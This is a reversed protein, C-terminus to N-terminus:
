SLSRIPQPHDRVAYASTAGVGAMITVVVHEKISFPGPNLSVGFIRKNPVVRALLRGLPFTLLQAVLQAHYRSTLPMRRISPTPSAGPRSHYESISLFLVPERRTDGGGVVVGVDVRTTHRCAYRPRGHQRRGIPGRSIPFRGRPVRLKLVRTRVPRRSESFTPSPVLTRLRRGPEGCPFGAIRDWGTLIAIVFALFKM